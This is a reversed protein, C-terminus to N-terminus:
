WFFDHKKMDRLVCPVSNLLGRGPSPKKNGSREEEAPWKNSRAEAAGRTYYLLQGLHINLVDRFKTRPNRSKM